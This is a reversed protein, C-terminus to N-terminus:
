GSPTAAPAADLSLRVRTGRADSVVSLEGGIFTARQRMNALGRGPPAGALGCGDDRVEIFARERGGFSEVGSAIEITRARSHKVANAIAEQLIRLLHLAQQPALRPQPALEGARWAFTAGSGHALPELRARLAGLVDSLERESGDLSDVAGRLEALALRVSRRVAASDQPEREAVALASVLQAGLGDHLDRQVREREARTAQARELALLRAQSEHLSANLARERALGDSLFTVIHAFSAIVVPGHVIPFLPVGLLPARDWFLPLDNCTMLMSLALASSLTAGRGVWQVVSERSHLRLVYAALAFDLAFTARALSFTAAAPALVLALALAALAAFAARELGRREIRGVRHGGCMVCAASVGLGVPWVGLDATRWPLGAFFLAAIGAALWAWEPKPDRRFVMLYLLVLTASVLALVDPAAILANRARFAGQLDPASGIFIPTLYGAFEPRVRLKLLLTNPGSHLAASPLPLWVPERRGWWGIPGRGVTALAQGNLFVDAGFAVQAILLQPPHDPIRALSFEARCWVDRGDGRPRWDWPLRTLRWAGSDAAPPADSTAPALWVDALRLSERNLLAGSRALALLMLAISIGAAVAWPKWRM